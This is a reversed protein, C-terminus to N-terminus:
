QPMLMVHVQSSHDRVQTRVCVAKLAMSVISDRIFQADTFTCHASRKFWWPEPNAGQQSCIVASHKTWKSAQLHQTLVVGVSGAVDQTSSVTCAELLSHLGDYPREDLLVRVM